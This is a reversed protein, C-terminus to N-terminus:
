PTPETTGEAASEPVGPTEPSSEWPAELQPPIRELALLLLRRAEAHAEREAELQARLLAITEDKADILADPQAQDTSQDAAPRVRDADLLVYVTGDEAKEHALTNRKIRGRVAEVTLGLVGAAELVTYRRRTPPPDTRDEGM